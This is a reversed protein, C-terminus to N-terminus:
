AARQVDTLACPVYNFRRTPYAFGNAAPVAFAIMQNGSQVITAKMATASQM